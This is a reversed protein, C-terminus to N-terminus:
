RRRRRLALGALGALTVAGPAPIALPAALAFNAFNSTRIIELQLISTNSQLWVGLSPNGGTVTSGDFFYAGTTSNFSWGPMNGPLIAGSSGTGTGTVGLVDDLWPTTIAGSSDFATLTYTENTVSGGDLDGFRFYTGVPLVGLPLTSFDYVSTGAPNSVSSPIPGVVSFTGVWSAAAPATWAGTWGGTVTTPTRFQAPPAGPNPSPIPLNSGSGILPAAAAASALLASVGM